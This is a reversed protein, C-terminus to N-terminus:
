SGVVVILQRVFATKWFMMTILSRVGIESSTSITEDAMAEGAGIGFASTSVEGM